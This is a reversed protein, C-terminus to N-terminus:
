EEFDYAVAVNTTYSVTEPDFARPVASAGEMSAQVWEMSDTDPYEWIEFLLLPNDQTQYIRYRVDVASVREEIVKTADIFATADDITKFIRRYIRAIKPEM